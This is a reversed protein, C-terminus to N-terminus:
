ARTSAQWELEAPDADRHGLVMNCVTEAVRVATYERPPTWDCPRSTVLRVAEAIRVPDTGALINSGCEITEPRETVNRITVNPIRLICAEEQVTGSDSVVCLAARELRVFDFFGQPELFFVGSSDLSIGFSAARSRTRPHM